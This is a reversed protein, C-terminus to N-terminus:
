QFIAQDAAVRISEHMISTITGQKLFVSQQRLPTFSTYYEATPDLNMEHKRPQVKLEINQEM